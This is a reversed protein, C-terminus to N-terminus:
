RLSRRGRFSVYAGEWGELREFSVVPLSTTYTLILQDSKGAQRGAVAYVVASGRSSLVCKARLGPVLGGQAAYVLVGSSDAAVRFCAQFEKQAQLVIRLAGRPYSWRVTGSDCSELYVPLVQEPSQSLGSQAWDCSVHRRSTSRRIPANHVVPFVTAAALLLGVVSAIQESQM